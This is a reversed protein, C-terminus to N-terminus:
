RSARGPCASRRSPDRTRPPPRRRPPPRAATWGWARVKRDGHAGAASDGQAGAAGRALAAQADWALFAGLAARFEADAPLGAEGAAQSALTIWRARQEGTFDQEAQPKGASEGAGPVEGAPAGEARGPAPPGGFAAGIRAAERQPYGPPVDAFLPALLGDAPVHKEYLLRTMRTLAPLGGGM